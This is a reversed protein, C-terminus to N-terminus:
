VTVLAPPQVEIGDDSAVIRTCGTVGVGGKTPVIVAGVQARGIPLTTILPKGGVPEHIRVLYGPETAVPPLPALVVIDPRAV